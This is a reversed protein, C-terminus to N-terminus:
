QPCNNQIQATQQKIQAAKQEESLYRVDGNPDITRFHQGSKLQTLNLRLQQCVAANKKRTDAEAEANKRASEAAQEDASSMKAAIKVPDNRKKLQNTHDQTPQTSAVVKDVDHQHPPPTQTYQMVGNGDIWKYFAQGYSSEITILYILPITALIWKSDRYM